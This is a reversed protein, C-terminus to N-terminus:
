VFNSYLLLKEYGELAAIVYGTVIKCLKLGKVGAPHARLGTLSSGQNTNLGAIYAVEVQLGAGDSLMDPFICLANDSVLQM